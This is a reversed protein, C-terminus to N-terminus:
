PYIYNFKILDLILKSFYYIIFSHIQFFYYFFRRSRETDDNILGILIGTIDRLVVDIKIGGYRSLTSVIGGNWM